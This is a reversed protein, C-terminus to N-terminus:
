PCGGSETLTPGVFSCVVEILEYRATARIELNSALCDTDDQTQCGTAVDFFYYEEQLLLQLASLFLIELLYTQPVDSVAM